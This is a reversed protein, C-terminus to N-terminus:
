WAFGIGVYHRMPGILEEHKSKLAFRYQFTYRVNVHWMKFMLGVEPSIASYWNFSFDDNNLPETNNTIKNIGSERLVYQGVGTYGPGFHIWIPAVIKHTWGFSVNAEPKLEVDPENRLIKFIDGNTHLSFFVGWKRFNGTGSTFGIPVNKSYEYTFFHDKNKRRELITNIMLLKENAVNRFSCDADIVHQYYKAAEKINDENFLEEATKYYTSCDASHDKICAQNQESIYIDNPNYNLIKRYLLIAEMYKVNYYAEDAKERWIILSDIVSLRSDILIRGELNTEYEPAHKAINYQVKADNYNGAQYYGAAKQLTAFFPNKMIEYPDSVKYNRCIKPQENFLKLIYPDFGNCYVTVARKRLDYGGPDETPFVLQYELENGVTDTTIRIIDNYDGFSVSSVFTLPMNVSSKFVAMFEKRNECSYIGDEVREISMKKQAFLSITGLLAVFSLAIFKKM